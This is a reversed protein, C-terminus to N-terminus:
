AADGGDDGKRLTLTIKDPQEPQATGFPIVAANTGEEDADPEDAGDTLTIKLSPEGEQSVGHFETRYGEEPEDAGDELVEGTEEDMVLTLQEEEDQRDMARKQADAIMWAYDMRDAFVQAFEQLNKDGGARYRPMIVGVILLGIRAVIYVDGGETQRECYSLLEIDKTMAMLYVREILRIGKSTNFPVYVTGGDVISFHLPEIGRETIDRADLRFAIKEAALENFGINSAQKETVDFISYIQDKDLKRFGILPYIARLTGVWQTPKGDEEQVNVLTIDRAAKCLQAIKSTKM